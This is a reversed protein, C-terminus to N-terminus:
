RMSVIVDSINSIEPRLEILIKSIEKSFDNKVSLSSGECYVNFNVNFDLVGMNPNYYDYIISPKIKPFANFHSKTSPYEKRIKKINTKYKEEKLKNQMMDNVKSELLDLDMDMPIKFTVSIQHMYTLPMIIINKHILSSNRITYMESTEQNFLLSKLMGVKKINYMRLGSNNSTSLQITDGQRILSIKFSILTGVIIDSLLDRVGLALVVTFISLTTFIYTSNDVLFLLSSTIVLFWIFINKYRQIQYQYEHEGGNVEEEGETNKKNKIINLMVVLKYIILVVLIYVFYNLIKDLILMIYKDFSNNITEIKTKLDIMKSKTIINKNNGKDIEQYKNNIYKKEDKITLFNSLLSEQTKIIDLTKEVRQKLYKFELNINNDNIEVKSYNLQNIESLLINKGFYLFIGMLTAVIAIFILKYVTITEQNNFLM